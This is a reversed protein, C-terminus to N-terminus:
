RFASRSCLVETMQLAYRERICLCSRKQLPFDSEPEARVPASFATSFTRCFSRRLAKETTASVSLPKEGTQRVNSEYKRKQMGLVSVTIKRRIHKM